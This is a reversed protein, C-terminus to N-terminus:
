LSPPAEREDERRREKKERKRKRELKWEEMSIQDLKTLHSTRNAMHWERM